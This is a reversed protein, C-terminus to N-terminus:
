KEAQRKYIKEGLRKCLDFTLYGKESIEQELESQEEETLGLSKEAIEKVEEKWRLLQQTEKEEWQEYSFWEEFYILRSTDYIMTAYYDKTLEDGKLAKEKGRICNGYSEYLSLFSYKEWRYFCEGKKGYQEEMHKLIGSYDKKEYLEDLIPFNEREWAIEQEIEKGDQGFVGMFLWTLSLLGLICIGLILLISITKSMEKKITKEYVTKTEETIESLDKSIDEMKSFYEKEAEKRNMYGCYPCYSHSDEM